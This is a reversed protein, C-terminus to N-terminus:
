EKSSSSSKFVGKLTRGKKRMRRAFIFILLLVFLVVLFVVAQGTGIGEFVAFGGIPAGLVVRETVSSSYVESDYNVLLNLEGELSENIPINIRFEKTLNMELTRNESAKAVEQNELDLLSFHIQIDQDEGALEELSYIVRVRNSRVRDASILGFELKKKEVNVIFNKTSAIGSCKVSVGLSYHGEEKEEPATVKFSFEHQKNSDIKAPEGSVLIWSDSEGVPKVMCSILSNTGTNKVILKVDQSSGPNLSLNSIESVSLSTKPIIIKKSEPAPKEEEKEESSTEEEEEDENCVSDYWYGGGIEDCDTENLCLSMDNSCSPEEEANCTDNYWYGESDTCNTEDLCLDLHDDDCVDGICQGGVVIDECVEQVETTENTCQTWSACVEVTENNENTQNEYQSCPECDITVNVAVTENVCSTGNTLIEWTYGASECDTENTYDGFVAYGTSRGGTYYFVVVLAALLAIVLVVSVEKRM